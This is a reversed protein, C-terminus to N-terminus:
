DREKDFTVVDEYPNLGALASFIATKGAENKGVFGTARDLTFERSDEVSRFNTARASILKM